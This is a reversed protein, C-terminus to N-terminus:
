VVQIEFGHDPTFTLSIELHEALCFWRAARNCFHDVEGVTLGGDGPARFHRPCDLDTAKWEPSWPAGALVPNADLLMRQLDPPLAAPDIVMGSYPPTEKPDEGVFGDPPDDAMEGNLYLRLRQAPPINNWEEPTFGEPTTHKEDNM